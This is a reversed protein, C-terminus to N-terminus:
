RGIDYKKLKSYLTGRSIDLLRAAENKNWNCEGMVTEILDRENKWLSFEKLAGAGSRIKDPLVEVGIHPDPSLVVCRAVTNQLERVNGPWDYDMMFKMAQTDFGTIKRGEILCYTKLFHNALLPVDTIRERLAPLVTSIVNLRYYFDERIRGAKMEKEIDRNTAAIVRVDVEVLREGGVREFSREQLFRLLLVQTELPLDAVEDLFLIGGQARELRGRKRTLAGTFAGKEHGFIESHVLTPVFSSCHAVIFPAEKYRGARHIARAVLEKGTGSEGMVLVTSKADAVSQILRYIEQMPRSRGVIGMFKDPGTLQERFAEERVEKSIQYRIVGSIQRILTEVFILDDEVEIDLSPSALMFLGFCQEEMEIPVAMWTRFGGALEQIVAPCDDTKRGSCTPRMRAGTLLWLLAEELELGRFKREARDFCTARSEEKEARPFYFSDRGPTLLFMWADFDPYFGKMIDELVDGMGNLDYQGTVRLLVRNIAELEDHRRKLEKKSEWLAEQAQKRKTIDKVHEITGVVRGSPNKLPFASVDIWRTPKEESPHPVMESHAEGTALTRLAPCHPCPSTRKQYARYCKKGVLPMQSAHMKEMWPNARVINFQCDLVTMGDQIAEFVNQLFRRDERLADEARKREATREEEVHFVDWFLRATVHDMVRVHHPKTQSIENAVEDRGTVNIIMDLNKLKYLDRYDQTTYIGQKEAYRHDVSDPSGGAVGILNMRLRKFRAALILDMIEKCATGGGVIAVNLAKDEKM